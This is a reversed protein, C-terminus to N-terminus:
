VKFFVPKKKFIILASSPSDMWRLYVAYYACRVRMARALAVVKSAGGVFTVHCAICLM